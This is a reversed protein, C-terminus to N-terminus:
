ILRGLLDWLRRIKTANFALHELVHALGMEDKNEMIAGVNQYLYYQVEGADSGDNYIYYTLGNPLKGQRLGKMQTHAPTLSLFFFGVLLAMPVGTLQKIINKFM